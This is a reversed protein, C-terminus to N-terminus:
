PHFSPAGVSENLRLGLVHAIAVAHTLPLDRVGPEWRALMSHSVGVAKAVTRLSM